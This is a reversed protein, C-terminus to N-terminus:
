VLRKIPKPHEGWGGGLFGYEWLNRSKKSLKLSYKSLIIFAASFRLNQKLTKLLNNLKWQNKLSKLGLIYFTDSFLLEEEMNKTGSEIIFLVWFKCVEM